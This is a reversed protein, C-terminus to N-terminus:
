FALLEPMYMLLLALLSIILAFMLIGLSLKDSKFRKKDKDDSLEASVRSIIYEKEVRNSMATSLVAAVTTISVGLSVQSAAASTESLLGELGWIEHKLEFYPRNLIRHM